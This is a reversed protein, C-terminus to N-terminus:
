FNRVEGLLLPLKRQAAKRCSAGYSTMPCDSRKDARGGTEALEFAKVAHGLVKATAEADSPTIEGSSVARALDSLADAADRACHIPRLPFTVLRDKPPPCLRELCLKMAVPHGKKALRIATRTITEGEGALLAELAVTTANRSGQPRGRPNGSQGPPFRGQIRGTNDPPM